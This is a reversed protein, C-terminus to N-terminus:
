DAPILELNRRLGPQRPDIELAREWYYRARDWEGLRYHCYGLGSLAAPSRPHLALAQQFSDAAASFDSRAILIEARNLYGDPDYPRAAIFGDIEELARGIDGIRLFLTSLNLRVLPDGPNLAASRQFQLLAEEFRGEEGYAVGLSNYYLPERPFIAIAAKFEEIAAATRGLRFYENGLGHRAKSSDPSVEVARVFLTYNSKWDRNRNVTGAGLALLILIAAPLVVKRGARGEALRGLTEAGWIALGFLPLYIFREAGLRATPVLNLVPLLALFFFALGFSGPRSKGRLGAALLFAATLLAPLVLYGSWIVPPFPDPYEVTLRVPLFALRGYLGLSKLALILRGAPDGFEPAAPLTETQFLILMRAAGYLAAILFLTLVGPRLLETWRRRRLILLYAAIVVPLSVAMEKSLLALVFFLLSLLYFGPAYNSDAIGSIDDETDGMRNKQRESKIFTLLALCFFLCSLLDERFSIGNVAEAQAPHVLFILAALFGAGPTSCLKRGLAYVALGALLHLILNTLHYGRPDTGFLAWDSFYTLTVLPRFSYEESRAYYDRSLFKGLNSWDRIFFNEEVTVLDDYVFGNDLSNFYVGTGVLILLIIQVIYRRPSRM